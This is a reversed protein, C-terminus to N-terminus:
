TRHFTVKKAGSTCEYDSSPIGLSGDDAKTRVCDFGAVAIDAPGGTAGVLPGVKRVFEEAEACSLGVAVIDGAIDESNPTFNQDACRGGSGPTPGATTSPAAAATTTSSTSTAVDGDDDSCAGLLGVAVIVAAALRIARRGARHTSESV